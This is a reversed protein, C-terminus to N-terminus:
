ILPVSCVKAQSSYMKTLSLLKQLTLSLPNSRTSGKEDEKMNQGFDKVESLTETVTRNRLTLTDYKEKDQEKGNEEQHSM